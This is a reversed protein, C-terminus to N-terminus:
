HAQTMVLPGFSRGDPSRAIGDPTVEVETLARHGISCNRCGHRVLKGLRGPPPCETVRDYLRLKACPEAFPSNWIARSVPMADPSAHSVMGPHYARIKPSVDTVFKQNTRKPWQPARM